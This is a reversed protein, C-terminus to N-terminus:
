IRSLYVYGDTGFGEMSMVVLDGGLHRAYNRSIPLGYGLGAMPSSVNFDSSNTESIVFRDLTDTPATTFLYSWIKKMHSRRIGGGEDSIKIVENDEGDAIIVKIPPLTNDVGHFEVTARMSNKLLEVLIYQVYNPITAMKLDLRGHITVEPADGHTRNCMYTADEIASKAIDYPSISQNVIGVMNHDDSPTKLALYQGILTRIGMRSLYFSDLGEQLENHESFDDLNAGLMMRMENAGKAMTILTPAHRSYISNLVKCFVDEKEVDVPAACNRIEEFSQKYWSIVKNVYTSERM